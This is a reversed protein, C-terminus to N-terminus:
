EEWVLSLIYDDTEESRSKMDGRQLSVEGKENITNVNQLGGSLGEGTFKLYAEKMTWIRLFKKAEKPSLKERLTADETVYSIEEESLSRRLVARSVERPCEIDVGVEGSNVAVAVFPFSHSISLSVSEGQVRLKGKEDPSIEIEECSKRLYQSLMSLALSFAFVSLKKDEINRLKEAKEQRWLPLSSFAKEYEIESFIRVDQVRLKM